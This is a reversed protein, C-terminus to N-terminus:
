KFLYLLCFERSGPAFGGVQVVYRGTVPATVGAAVVGDKNFAVPELERGSPDRLVISPTEGSASSAACFWYQNGAFLNVALRRPKEGQLVGSWAGDRVKFGDNGLAAAVDYLRPRLGPAAADTKAPKQASALSALCALCLLVLKM